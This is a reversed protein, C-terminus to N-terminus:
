AIRQKEDNPLRLILLTALIPLVMLLKFVIPLGFNDALFGLGTVGVGGLGISFGITLGSAMGINNPLLEQALVVSTAFSFVLSFGLLATLIITSMGSSYPLLVLLPLTIIMSTLIIRKRGFRDSLSAGMFTGIVGFVLFMSILNAAYKPEGMLYEIYYLPLYTTIGMQITSRIFIFTILIFLYYYAREVKPTVKQQASKRNNVSYTDLQKRSQMLWAFILIGPILFYVTNSLDGPLVILISMAISGLAFGLNGGVSFLGMNRGKSDASSLLMASRSAQPHFAAVGVGTIIVILLLSTYSSAYGTLTIGITAVLVSAPLLWFLSIKDTYYGFIPQIVSSTLNQVLVIMGVQAYTLMFKEKLFPLLIPVAGQTLDTVLHAIALIFVPLNYKTFM